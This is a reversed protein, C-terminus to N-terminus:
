TGNVRRALEGNVDMQTLEHLGGIATGAIFVIPFEIGKAAASAFTRTAEDESVDLVRFAISRSKLLEEVKVKTRHDKGDFYVVVPAPERVVPKDHVLVARRREALEEPTCFPRGALDNVTGLAERLVRLPALGDFRDSALKEAVLTRLRDAVLSLQNTESM